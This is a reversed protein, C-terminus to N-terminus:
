FWSNSPPESGTCIEDAPWLAGNLHSAHQKHDIKYKTGKINYKSTSHGHTAV